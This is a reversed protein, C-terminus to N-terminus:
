LSTSVGTVDPPLPDGARYASGGLNIQSWKHAKEFAPWAKALEAAVVAPDDLTLVHAIGGSYHWDTRTNTARAVEKILAEIHWSRGEGQSILAVSQGRKFIDKNCPDPTEEKFQDM